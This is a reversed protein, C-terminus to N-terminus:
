MHQRGSVWYVSQKEDQCGTCPRTNLRTRRIKGHYKAAHTNTFQRELQQFKPDPMPNHHYLRSRLLILWTLCKLKNHHQQMCVQTKEKIGNQNNNSIMYHSILICEDNALRATKNGAEEFNSINQAAINCPGRAACIQCV